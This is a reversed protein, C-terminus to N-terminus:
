FLNAFFNLVALREFSSFFSVALGTFKSSRKALGENKLSWEGGRTICSTYIIQEAGFSYPSGRGRLRAADLIVQLPQIYICQATMPKVRHHWPFFICIQYCRREELLYHRPKDRLKHTCPELYYKYGRWPLFKLNFGLDWGM